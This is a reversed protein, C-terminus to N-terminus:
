PLFLSVLDRILWPAFVSGRTHTFLYLPILLTLNTLCSSNKKRALMASGNAIRLFLFVLICLLSNSVCSGFSYSLIPPSFPHLSAFYLLPTKNVAWVFSLLPYFFVVICAPTLMTVCEGGGSWKRALRFFLLSISLL